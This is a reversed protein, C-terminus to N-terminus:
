LNPNYPKNNKKKILIRKFPVKAKGNHIYCALRNGEKYSGTNGQNYYTKIFNESMGNWGNPLIDADACGVIEFEVPELSNNKKILFRKYVGKGNVLFQKISTGNCDLNHEYGLIEFQSPCYKDLFTIPVGMVGDYDMPIDKVKDVNIADYNDYHPYDIPNYTKTLILPKNQKIHPINTFWVCMMVNIIANGKDDYKPHLCKNEDYNNGAIFGMSGSFSKHGLWLENKKIYPFIEKYTVANGNGIILFKKGYEMLQAIYDRFLSFPPNTIIVDAIKLINICEDSDFSGNGNLTKITEETGNYEAYYGNGDKNYGTCYLHKIKHINFKDKFYKYFNSYHPNDCNCYITKGEINYHQLEKEIDAYQTYFEDNKEKKANHLKSNSM